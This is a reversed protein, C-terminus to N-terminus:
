EQDSDPGSSCSEAPPPPMTHPGGRYLELWEEVMQAVLLPRKPIRQQAVLIGSETVCCDLWQRMIEEERGLEAQTLFHIPLLHHDATMLPLFVVDLAAARGTPAGAVEGLGAGGGGPDPEMPVLASFHGRTYGLSIPSKWCFSSEWLLPLYIGEFRAYGLAEGRFSKVYKVGYVIIPRRLIHALTFIHMQELASGPQTALSLLTAWDDQWQAEDLSFHLLDAQLTEADKWRPYLVPAGECLSDGLARRLTNERDFVGWTAQLASDLLCDGASRNWLAYLRSGLRDTLELSWNIIPSEEELEKQVDKDLLEDFLRQQVSPTFDEIEAVYRVWSTSEAPLAFTVFESVIFCPFDGKRQKLVAAIHRRIEAALDASVDSPVRKAVTAPHASLLLQLLDHRQFRIALHVLTHGIDFASPRGLLTVEAASLQRSPDGGLSLYRIVPESEGRVVATCAELWARDRRRFHRLRQEELYNNDAVQSVLRTVSYAPPVSFWTRRPLLFNTKVHGFSFYPKYHKEIILSKDIIFKNFLSNSFKLLQQPSAATQGLLLALTWTLQDPAALIPVPLTVYFVSYLLLHSKELSLGSLVTCVKTSKPWNEYTCSPCNWKTRSNRDNNDVLALDENSGVGGTAAAIRPSHCQACRDACPWNLYTCAGCSWKGGSNTALQPPSPNTILPSMQCVNILLKYIYKNAELSSDSILHPPKPTCCLTCKLAKPWNEYTCSQCAWKEAAEHSM